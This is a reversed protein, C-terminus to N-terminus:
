KQGKWNRRMIGFSSLGVALLALTNPEPTISITEVFGNPPTLAFLGQDVSMGVEPDPSLDISTPYNETGLETPLSLSDDIQGQWDGTYTQGGTTLSYSVDVPLGLPETSSSIRWVNGAFYTLPKAGTDFSVTAASSTIGIITTGAVQQTTPPNPFQAPIQITQTQAARFSGWATMPFSVSGSQEITQATSDITVTENLTGPIAYLESSGLAQLNAYFTVPLSEMYSQSHAIFPLGFLVVISLMKNLKM